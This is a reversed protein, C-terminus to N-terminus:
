ALAPIPCRGDNLLRNLPGILRTVIPEPVILDAASGRWSREYNYEPYPMCDEADVMWGRMRFHSVAGQLNALAVGIEWDGVFRADVSIVAALDIVRRVLGGILLEFVVRAGRWHDSARSCFLRISGDDGIEIEIGYNERLPEPPQHVAEYHTAIWGSPTRVLRYAESFDPSFQETLRPVNHVHERTWAEWHDGVADNLMEDSARLPRALVFLHAQQRQEEQTPDLGVFVRLEEPLTPPAAEAVREHLRRVEIATLTTNTAGSRGRFAGGVAHPADPSPPVEIALYGRATDAETPIERVIVRVPPDVSSRAIQAVRERQGRLEIPTLVAPPGEDIGVVISGGGIAFSALDVAISHNGRDGRPLERKIDTHEDERLRGSDVADRLGAEDTPIM